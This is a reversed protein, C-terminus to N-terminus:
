REGWISWLRREQVGSFTGSSRVVSLGKTSPREANTSPDKGNTSPTEAKLRFLYKARPSVLEVRSKIPEANTPNANVRLSRARQVREWLPSRLLDLDHLAELRCAVNSASVFDALHVRLQDHIDDRDHEVTADEITRNM